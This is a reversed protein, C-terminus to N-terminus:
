ERSAQRRTLTKKNENRSSGARIQFVTSDRLQLQRTLHPPVFTPRDTRLRGFAYLPKGTREGEGGRDPLPGPQPTSEARQTKAASLTPRTAGRAGRRLGVREIEWCVRTASLTRFFIQVATRFVAKVKFGVVGSVV